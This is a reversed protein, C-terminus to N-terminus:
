SQVVGGVSQSDGATDPWYWRSLSQALVFMMSASALATTDHMPSWWTSEWYELM